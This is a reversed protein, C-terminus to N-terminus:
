PRTTVTCLGQQNQMLIPVVYDTGYGDGGASYKDGQEFDGTTAAHAPLLVANTLPKSWQEPLAKNGGVVVASGAVLGKLLSRRDKVELIDKKDM